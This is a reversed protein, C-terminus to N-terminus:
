RFGGALVHAVLATLLQASQPGDARLVHQFGRAAALDLLRDSSAVLVCTRLRACADAPLQALVNDLAEASTLLLASAAPLARVRDAHRRDLRAPQRCYVNARLVTAGRTTLTQTIVGRGGPASILGIAVGRVAALEPLALLGESDMRQPVTVDRIGARALAARTGEGLAIWRQRPQAALTRLRMAFRVAAPSTAIVIPAHVTTELVRRTQTSDLARLRLGPVHLCRAGLRTAARLLAANTNVPRLSVVCVGTLPAAPTPRSKAVAAHHTESM